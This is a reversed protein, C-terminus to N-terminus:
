GRRGGQYAKTVSANEVQNYFDQMMDLIEQHLQLYEEQDVKLYKGHAIDNRNALLKEDLLKEKTEFRSYDLGLSLVIERLVESNLNSKTQVASKWVLNSRAASEQRFFEVIELSPKIRNSVGTEQVMSGIVVALFCPSLDSHRLQQRSVFQMYFTGVNKIFGEWHAYLITVASRILLKKKHEPENNEVMSKLTHLEKKRWAFEASMEHELDSHTRIDSM